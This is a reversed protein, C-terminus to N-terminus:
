EEVFFSEGGSPNKNQTKQFKYIDEESKKYHTDATTDSTTDTTTDNTTDATTDATTDGVGNFDQELGYKVLTVVTNVSSSDVYILGDEQLAKLRRNVTARSMHWWESMQETTGQVQGRKYTRSHQKVMKTTDQYYARLNLDLFVEKLTFPEGNSYYPHHLFERSVKIYGIKKKAM